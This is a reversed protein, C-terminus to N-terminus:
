KDITKGRASSGPPLKDLIIKELRYPGPDKSRKLELAFVEGEVRCYRTLVLSQPNNPDQTIELKLTDEPKLIKLVDDALDGVNIRKGRVTIQRIARPFKPIKPEPKVVSKHVWEQPIGKAVKLRYWSGELSVYELKEGKAAKRTIPYKTGPGSRINCPTRAYVLRPPKKPSVRMRMKELIGQIATRTSPSKRPSPTRSAFYGIVGLVFLIILLLPLYGIRKRGAKQKVEARYKETEAIRAKAEASLAGIDTGMSSDATISSSDKPTSKIKVLMQREAQVYTRRIQRPITFLDVVLLIGLIFGCSGAIIMAAQMEKSMGTIVGVTLGGVLLLYFVGMGTKGIYFKHIGLGGLFFWLIYALATNKKYKALESDLIGLEHESLERRLEIIDEEMRKVRKKSFSM